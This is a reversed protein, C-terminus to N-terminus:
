KKKKGHRNDSSSARDRKSSKHGLHSSHRSHDDRRRHAPSHSHSSTVCLVDRIKTSQREMRDLVPSLLKASVEELLPRMLKSAMKAALVASGAKSTSM